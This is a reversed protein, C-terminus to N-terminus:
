SKALDREVMLTPFPRSKPRSLTAPAKSARQSPFGGIHGTSEEWVPRNRPAKINEKTQAKAQWHNLVSDRENHCWLLSFNKSCTSATNQHLITFRLVQAQWVRPHLLFSATSVVPLSIQQVIFEKINVGNAINSGAIIIHLPKRWLKIDFVFMCMGNITETKKHTLTILLKRSLHM